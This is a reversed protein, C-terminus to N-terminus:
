RFKIFLIIINAIFLLIAMAYLKLRYFLDNNQMVQRLQQVISLNEEAEGMKLHIDLLVNGQRKLETTIMKDRDIIENAAKTTEVIKNTNNEIKDKLANNDIQEERYEYKTNNGILQLKIKNELTKIEEKIKNFELKHSNIM